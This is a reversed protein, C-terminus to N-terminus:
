AAKAAINKVGVRYDYGKLRRRKEAVQWSEPMTYYAYRVGADDFKLETEIIVGAKKLDDIRSALRRIGYNGAIVQTIYGHDILHNWVRNCQNM